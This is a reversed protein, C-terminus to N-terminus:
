GGPESTTADNSTRTRISRRSRGFRYKTTLVMAVALFTVLTSPEPASYADLQAPVEFVGGNQGIPALSLLGQTPRLGYTM